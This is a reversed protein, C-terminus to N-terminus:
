AKSWRLTPWAGSAQWIHNDTGLTVAWTMGGPASGAGVGATLRGGLSHWGPRVGTTTGAFEDYWAANDAGRAFAVAVGPAPTAAGVDGAVRGGLSSWGSWRAGDTSHTVWLAHDLGVALVYLTGGTNVAAPGTGALARGGLSVWPRATTSTSERDWIAGDGGRAVLDVAEGGTVSLAGAAAGPRSTLRGGLPVWLPSGTTSFNMFAWLANDTGRGALLVPMSHAGVSGPPVFTSGPGGVLRGGMARASGAPSLPATYVQGDSGTYFLSAAPNAAGTAAVSPTVGPQPPAVSLAAERRAAMGSMAAVSPAGARAGPRSSGAAQAEAPAAAMATAVLVASILVALRFVGKRIAIMFGAEQSRFLL